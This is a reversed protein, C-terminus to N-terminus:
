GPIEKGGRRDPRQEKGGLGLFRLWRVAHSLLQERGRRGNKHNFHRPRRRVWQNVAAQVAALGISESSTGLGLLDQILLLNAALCRLTTLTYGQDAFYRLYELREQLLPSNLHHRRAARRRFLQDFM